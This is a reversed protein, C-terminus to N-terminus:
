EEDNVSIGRTSPMFSRTEQSRTKLYTLKETSCILWMGSQSLRSLRILCWTQKELVDQLSRIVSTFLLEAIIKARQNDQTVELDRHWPIAIIRISKLHADKMRPINKLLNIEDRRGRLSSSISNTTYYLLTVDKSDEDFSGLFRLPFGATLMQIPVPYTLLSIYVGRSVRM